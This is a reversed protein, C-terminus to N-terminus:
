GATDGFAVKAAVVSNVANTLDARLQATMSFIEVMKQEIAAVRSEMTTCFNFHSQSVSRAVM